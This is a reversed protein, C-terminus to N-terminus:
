AFCFTCTCFCPLNRARVGEREEGAVAMAITHIYWGKDASVHEQAPFLRPIPERKESEESNQIEPLPRTELSWIIVLSGHQMLEQMARTDGGGEGRVATVM